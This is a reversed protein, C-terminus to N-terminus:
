FRTQIGAQSVKTVNNTPTVLGTFIEFVRDVNDALYRPPNKDRIFDDRISDEVDIDGHSVNYKAGLIIPLNNRTGRTTYCESNYGGRIGNVLESYINIKDSPIGYDVSNFSGGNRQAEILDTFSTTSYKERDFNSKDKNQIFCSDNTSRTNDSM